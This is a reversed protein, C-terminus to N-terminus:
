YNVEGKQKTALLSGGAVRPACSGAGLILSPQIWVGTVIRGMFSPDRPGLGSYRSSLSGRQRSILILMWSDPGFM